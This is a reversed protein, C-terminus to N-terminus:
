GGLQQTAASLAAAQAQLAVDSADDGLRSALEDRTIVEFAGATADGGRPSEIIRVEGELLGIFAGGDGADLLAHLHDVTITQPEM